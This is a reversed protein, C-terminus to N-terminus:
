GPVPERHAATGRPLVRVSEGQRPARCSWGLEAAIRKRLAEAAAPEGHTIMVERPAAGPSVTRLWELLERADAHGSTNPLSFVEARVPVVSGHIKVSRAGAVLDAGRTGVAQYGAFVIANRPEPAMRALHHLVRGGTAMGSAAVIVRPEDMRGIRRSASVSSTAIAAHAVESAQAPSLRTEGRHTLFVQTAAHAMPSDLFVPLGDPISGAAKLQRLHYLVAQARGVAFSPILISGGRGIVQRIVEGLRRAPDVDEHLRDGYTSEVVLLDAGEPIPCPPVLIPDSPRGLDGSFLAAVGGAEIRVSAAGLLHGAAQLRGSLGDGLRVEEGLSVPALYELARLSDAETYLPEPRAHRSYGGAAAHAADEEQLRGSDPLLVACLDATAATCYIPGRFGNRVLLPLYGAHDLHAHTLVVADLTAPDVPFPERNRLRLEKLGQFLGCDLLVRRDDSEVLYRSGTVTGAAGLFTLKM